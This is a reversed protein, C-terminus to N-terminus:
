ARGPRPARSPARLGAGTVEISTSSMKLCFSRARTRPPAAADARREGAAVDSDCSIKAPVALRQADGVLDAVVEVIEGRVARRAIARDPRRERQREGELARVVVLRQPGRQACAHVPVTVPWIARCELGHDALQVRHGHGPVARRTCPAPSGSARRRRCVGAQLPKEAADDALNEVFELDLAPATLEPPLHQLDRPERRRQETFRDVVDCREHAAACRPRRTGVARALAVQIVGNESQLRQDREADSGTSDLAAAVEHAEAVAFPEIEDVQGPRASAMIARCSWRRSGISALPDCRAGRGSRLTDCVPHRSGRAAPCRM